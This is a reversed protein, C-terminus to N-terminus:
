SGDPQSVQVRSARTERMVGELILCERFADFWRADSVAAWRLRAAQMAVYKRVVWTPVHFVRRTGELRGQRVFSAGADRFWRKVYRRTLREAPNFHQLRADPVWVGHHGASRVRRILETDDAGFLRGQIRGLDTNLPFARAVSTRFAMNAGFVSQKPALPGEHPGHDVIVYVGTLRDLHREVWAPPDSEFWPDIPGAFFSAEPWQRAARVYAELWNPAVRVDDDTWILLDGRAAEVARHAAFSKGPREEFRTVLPLVNRHRALVASTEDTSNNDVVVVEWRVGDPIILRHMSSLTEDLLRARNWTCIAVTIHM